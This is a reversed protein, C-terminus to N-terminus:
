AALTASYLCYQEHWAVSGVHLFQDVIKRSLRSDQVEPGSGPTEIRTLGKYHPQIALPRCAVTAALKYQGVRRLKGQRVGAEVRHDAIARQLMHILEARHEALDRSHHAAITPKINGNRIRGGKRVAQISPDIVAAAM